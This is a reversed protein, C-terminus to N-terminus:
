ALFAIERRMQVGCRLAEGARSSFSRRPKVFDCGEVVEEVLLTELVEKALKLINEFRAEGWCIEM